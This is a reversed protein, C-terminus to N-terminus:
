RWNYLHNFLYCKCNIMYILQCLVASLVLLEHKSDLIPLFPLLDRNHVSNAYKVFLSSETETRFKQVIYTSFKIAWAYLLLVLDSNAGCFYRFINKNFRLQSVFWNQKLIVWLIEQWIHSDSMQLEVWLIIYLWEFCFIEKFIHIYRTFFWLGIFLFFGVLEPFTRKLTWEHTFYHWIYCSICKLWLSIMWLVFDIFRM